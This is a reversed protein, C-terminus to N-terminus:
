TLTVGIDRALREIVAEVASHLDSFDVGAVDNLEDAWYQRETLSLSREARSAITRAKKPNGDQEARGIRNLVEVLEPLVAIPQGYLRMRSILRQLELRREHKGSAIQESRRALGYQESRRQGDPTWSLAGAQPYVERREFNRKTV